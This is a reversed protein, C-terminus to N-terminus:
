MQNSIDQRIAEAIRVAGHRAGVLNLADPGLELGALVGMCWCRKRALHKWEPEDEHTMGDSWSLDKDLVPLGNVLRLPLCEHLSALAPYKMVHNQCGTVLWIMDYDKVTSSLEDDMTVELQHLDHNWDVNSIEVEELLELKGQSIEHQSNLESLIEPPISGGRRIQKLKMARSEIDSLWFDDLLKGRAVGMWENKVDFHRSLSCSRQILTVQQCWSSKTASIALQASTIGGGVILFRMPKMTNNSRNHDHDDNTSNTEKYKGNTHLNHHRRLWPIIDKTELIRDDLLQNISTDLTRARLSSLWIPKDTSTFNPGMACVIRKTKIWRTSKEEISNGDDDNSITATSYRVQFIPEDKEDVESTGDDDIRKNRRCSIEEVFGKEVIDKVGYAEVLLDHFDHFVKTSPVQYPGSFKKDRQSLHQLTILEDGRKNLEAFYELTRHDYPDAHANMLSRLQKIGITNFNEKWTHLWKGHTDIVTAKRVIDELTLPPSIERDNYANYNPNSKKTNSKSNNGSSSKRQKRKLTAPPGRNLNKIHRKLDHIPRRQNNNIARKHREKETLFDPDPELLRLILTLSHPGAGIILIEKVDDSDISVHKSEHENTAEEKQQLLNANVEDELSSQYIATKGTRPSDEEKQEIITDLSKLQNTEM